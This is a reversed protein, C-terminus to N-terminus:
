EPGGDAQLGRLSHNPVHGEEGGEHTDAEELKEQHGDMKDIADKAQEAAETLLALYCIDEGSSTNESCAEELGKQLFLTPIGTLGEQLSGAHKKEQGHPFPLIFHFDHQMCQLHCWVLFLLSTMAPTCLPIKLGYFLKM